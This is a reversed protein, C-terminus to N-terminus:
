TMSNKRVTSTNQKVSAFDRVYIQWQRHLNTERDFIKYAQPCNRLLVEKLSQIIQDVETDSIYTEQQTPREAAQMTRVEVTDKTRKEYTYRGTKIAPPGFSFCSNNM